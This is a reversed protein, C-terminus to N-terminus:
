KVVNIPFFLTPSYLSLPSVMNRSNFPCCVPLILFRIMSVNLDKPKLISIIVFRGSIVKRSAVNSKLVFVYRGYLFGLCSGLNYVYTTLNGGSIKFLNGVDILLNIEFIEELSCIKPSPLVLILLLMSFTPIDPM